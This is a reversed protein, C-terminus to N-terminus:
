PLQLPVDVTVQESPVIALPPVAVTESTTVKGDVGPLTDFVAVTLEDFVSVFGAFLLAVATTVVTGAAEIGISEGIARNNSPTANGTAAALTSRGYLLPERPSTM